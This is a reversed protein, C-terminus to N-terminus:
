LCYYNCWFHIEGVLQIMPVVLLMMNYIGVFAALM